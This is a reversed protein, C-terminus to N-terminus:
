TYSLYNFRKRVVARGTANKTILKSSEPLEKNRFFKLGDPRGFRRGSAWLDTAEERSIRGSPNVGDPPRPAIRASNQNNRKTQQKWNTGYSTYKHKITYNNTGLRKNHTLPVHILM